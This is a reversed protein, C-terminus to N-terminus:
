RPPLNPPLEFKPLTNSSNIVGYILKLAAQRAMAQDYSGAWFGYYQDPYRDANWYPRDPGLPTYAYGKPFKNVRNLSGQSDLAAADLVSMAEQLKRLTEPNRVDVTRHNILADTIPKMAQATLTDALYIKYYPNSSAVTADKLLGEQTKLTGEAITSMRMFYSMANYGGDRSPDFNPGFSQLGSFKQDAYAKNVEVRIAEVVKKEFPLELSVLNDPLYHRKNKDGGNQFWIFLGRPDQWYNVKVDPPIESIKLKDFDQPRTRAALNLKKDFDPDNMSLELTHNAIRLNMSEARDSRGNQQLSLEPKLAVQENSPLKSPQERDFETGM